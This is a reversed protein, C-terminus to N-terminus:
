HTKRKAPAAAKAAHAAANTVAVDTADRAVKSFTEYATNAAAVASKFAALASESGAPANKVAKDVAAVLEGSVKAMRDELVKNIQVQTESAVEYLSRSYALAKEIGPQATTSQLAILDQVTKVSSLARASRMSEDLAEKATKLQLGVLREAGQLTINAVSLAAEISSKGLQIFQEPSQYM